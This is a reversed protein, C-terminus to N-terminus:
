RSKKLFKESVQKCVEGNARTYETKSFADEEMSTVLEKVNHEVSDIDGCL